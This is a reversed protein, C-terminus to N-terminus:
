KSVLEKIFTIRENIKKAANSGDSSTLNKFLQTLKKIAVSDPDCYIQQKLDQILKKIKLLMDVEKIKHPIQQKLDQIFEKVELGLELKKEAKELLILNKLINLDEKNFTEEKIALMLGTM